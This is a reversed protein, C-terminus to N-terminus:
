RDPESQVYQGFLLLLEHWSLMALKANSLNRFKFNKLILKLWSNFTSSFKCLGNMKATKFWSATLLTTGLTEKNLFQILSVISPSLISKTM